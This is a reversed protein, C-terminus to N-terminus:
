AASTLSESSLGGIPIIRQVSLSLMVASYAKPPKDLLIKAEKDNKAKERLHNFNMDSFIMEKTLKISSLMNDREVCFNEYMIKNNVLAGLIAYGNQKIFYIIDNFLKENDKLYIINEEKYKKGKPCIIDYIKKLNNLKLSIQKLEEENKLRDQKLLYFLEEKMNIVM